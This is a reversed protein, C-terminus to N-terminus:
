ATLYFRHLFAQFLEDTLARVFYSNPVIYSKSVLSSVRSL